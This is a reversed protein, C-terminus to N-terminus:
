RVAIVSIEVHMHKPLAAVQICERAPYPATLFSAYVNNIIGFNKLDTCYITTKMINKWDLGAELLIAHLNKMVRTVEQEMTLTDARGSVPDIAIQGSAFLMGGKMLAHSYPGIPDPAGPPNVVKLDQACLVTGSFLCVLLLYVGKM